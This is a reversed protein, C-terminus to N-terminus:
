QRPARKASEAFVVPDPDDDVSVGEFARDIHHAVGVPEKIGLGRCLQEIRTGGDLPQGRIGIHGIVGLEPGHELLHSAPGPAATDIVFFGQLLLEAPRDVVLIPGFRACDLVLIKAPHPAKQAM